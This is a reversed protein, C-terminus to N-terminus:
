IPGRICRVGGEIGGGGVPAPALPAQSHPRKITTANNRELDNNRCGGCNKM